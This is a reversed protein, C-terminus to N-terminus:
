ISEAYSGLSESYGNFANVIIDKAENYTFRKTLKGVPAFLDYFPLGNDHNLYKAKAKLYKAFDDRYELMAEIMASLTEAKMNSRNLTPELPNKYGRLENMVVVERKINSLSTAVVEDIKKM